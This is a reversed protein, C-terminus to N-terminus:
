LIILARNLMLLAMALQLQYFKLGCTILFSSVGSRTLVPSILTHVQIYAQKSANKISTTQRQPVEADQM